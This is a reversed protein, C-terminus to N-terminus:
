PRQGSACAAAHGPLRASRPQTDIEWFAEAIAAIGLRGDEGREKLLGPNRSLLCEGGIGGDIVVNAVRIGHPGLERAMSEAIARLGAKAAKFRM